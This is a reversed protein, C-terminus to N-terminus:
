ETKAKHTGNVAYDKASAIIMGAVFFFLMNPIRNDVFLIAETMSHCLLSVPVLVLMKQHLPASENFFLRICYIVLLVTFLLMMIFSIGGGVVLTQLFSNHLHIQYDYQIMRASRDMANQWGEGIILTVPRDAISLFASSYILFRGQMSSTLINANLRTTLVNGAQQSGPAENSQNEQAAATTILVQKFCANKQSLSDYTNSSVRIILPYTIVVLICVVLMAIVAIPIRLKSKLNSQFILTFVVLGLIAGTIIISSISSSMCIALYLGVAAISYVIRLWICKSSFFLHFLLALSTYFLIASINPHIGLINLRYPNAYDENIGLISADDIPNVWNTRTLVAVVAMWAIVSFIMSYLLSFIKFFTYRQAKTALFPLLFLVCCSFLLMYVMTFSKQLYWDGNIVRTVLFWFTFLVPLFVVPTRPLGLRIFLYVVMTVIIPSAYAVTINEERIPSFLLFIQLLFIFVAGIWIWLDIQKKDLAKWKPETL